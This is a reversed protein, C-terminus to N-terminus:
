DSQILKKFEALGRMDFEEGDLEDIMTALEAETERIETEVEEFTTEYKKALADIKSILENVIEGPLSMLSEILPEIWKDKLLLTVQEDSLNEIMEKTKGELLATEKKIQAKLEKEEATLANVSKLKEKTESEVADSKMAKKIEAFVFADKTDNVFSGEKEEETLTDFLEEYESAIESLRTEKKKLSEQDEKLLTGQILAFPIVHGTWGEQVEQDKGGKKKVVMNPDVKKTAAFGETQVIELDIAIKAWADDLIQYAMYKDVLPVNSLRDFIETALLAETQSINLTEMKDILQNSLFDYFGDFASSYRSEFTKVDRHGAIASKIDDTKLECYKASNSAFLDQKLMPFARWYEDLKDIESVPIGGFMAAYIDWSETEESSDVYRPINLNYDNQRIEDRSVARSYREVTERKTVTDVIKKIDCARLM